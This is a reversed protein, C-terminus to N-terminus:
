WRRGPRERNTAMFRMVRKVMVEGYEEMAVAFLEANERFFLPSILLTGGSPRTVEQVYSGETGLRMTRRFVSDDLNLRLKLSTREVPPKSLRDLIAM